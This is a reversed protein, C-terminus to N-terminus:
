HFTVGLRLLTAFSSEPETASSGYWHWAFDLGADLTRVRSPSHASYGAGLLVGAGTRQWRGPGSSASDTTAINSPHSNLLVLAPGGRLFPGAPPFEATGQWRPYWTATALLHHLLVVRDCAGSASDMSAVCNVGLTLNWEGGLLLRPGAPAGAGLGVSLPVPVGFFPVFEVDAGPLNLVGGGWGIWVSVYGKGREGPPPPPEPPPEPEPPPPEPPPEPLVPEATAAAPIVPPPLSALTARCQARAWLGWAASAAYVAAISGYARVDSQRNAVSTYCTTQSPACDTRVESDSAGIAALVFAAGAVGDLIPLLTTNCQDGRPASRVMVVSCGSGCLLVAALALPRLPPGRPQRAAPM